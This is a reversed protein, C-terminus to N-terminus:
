EIVMTFKPLWEKIKKIRTLMEKRFVIMMEKNNPMMNILNSRRLQLLTRELNESNKAALDEFLASKSLSIGDETERGSKQAVYAINSLTAILDDPIKAEKFQKQQSKLDLFELYLKFVELDKICILRSKEVTEEIVILGRKELSDMTKKFDKRRLRCVLFAEVMVFDYDFSPMVGVIHSHHPLLLLMLGVVGREKDRLVPQDVRKNADRLRSVVIKIISQLWVPVEKMVTAFAAQTIILAKTSDLAKVTASRPLNDLLSMEGITAGKEIVALEIKGEPTDKYIGVKGEQIIFLEKGFSGEEFLIEGPKYVRIQQQVPRRGTKLETRIPITMNNLQIM